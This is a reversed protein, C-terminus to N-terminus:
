KRKYTGMLHGEALVHKGMAREVETKKSGPKLELRKDLACLKFFYVQMQVQNTAAPGTSATTGLFCGALTIAVAFEGRAHM